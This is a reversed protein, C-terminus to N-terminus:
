MKDRFPINATRQYNPKKYNFSSKSFLLYNNIKLAHFQVIYLGIEFQIKYAIFYSPYIIVM